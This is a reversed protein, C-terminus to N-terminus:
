PTIVSNPEPSIVTEFMAEWTEQASGEAANSVFGYIHFGDPIDEIVVTGNETGSVDIINVVHNLDITTNEVVTGSENTRWYPFSGGSDASPSKNTGSCDTTCWTWLVIRSNGNLGPDLFVRSWTFDIADNPDAGTALGHTQRSSYYRADADFEERQDNTRYLGEQYTNASTSAAEVHIMNIGNAAGESLRVYYVSGTFCNSDMIPYSGNTPSLSTSASVADITLFGRFFAGDTLQTRQTPTATAVISAMDTVWDEFGILTVNGQIGTLNGDIDWIVWHITQSSSCLYDTVILTNHPGGVASSEMLPVILTSAPIKDPIGIIADAKSLPLAILICIFLISTIKARM